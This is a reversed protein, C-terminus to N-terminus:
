EVGELDEEFEIFNIYGVMHSNCKNCNYEVRVEGDEVLTNVKTINNNCKICKM